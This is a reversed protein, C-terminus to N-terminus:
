ARGRQLRRHKPGPRAAASPFLRLRCLARGRRPPAVPPSAPGPARRGLRLGARLRGRGGSGRGRPAGQAGRRPRPSRATQTAPAEPSRPSSTGWRGPTAGPAPGSPAHTGGRRRTDGLGAARRAPAVGCGSGAPAQFGPMLSQFGAEMECTRPTGLFHDCGM